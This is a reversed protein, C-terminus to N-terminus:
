YLSKITEIKTSINNKIWNADWWEVPDVFTNHVLMGFHLHDGGALGTTGTLGVVEGKNVVQGEKVKFASLHAYSSLLGFGHDIMVMKGYIGLDGAFVVKGANAAPVPSHAVSALDIGLHVQKDIARGNYEYERHDAYGAMKASNPLRLFPGEWYLTGETKGAIETIKKRNSERIERNVMLFQDVTSINADPIANVNFEPMKWNLFRDSIHIPVKKFNRKKIYYPLGGTADNGALDTARVLIHTGKGQTYDLAFFAMFLDKDKFYGSYGPFFSEGVVVGSKICSESLRYIVLGTGGQNVNHFRTLIELDPAKTDIIVDKELYATNGHFWRRWSFDRAVMRLTAKGDSIGMIQPEITVKFSAERDTGGEIIGTSPLDKEFLVTEKKDKVLGIWVNRVGSQPDSVTISFTQTRGIYQSPPELLITPKKGELKVVGIWVASGLVIICTLLILRSKLNKKETKL